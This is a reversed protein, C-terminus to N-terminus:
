YMEERYKAIYVNRTYCEVMEVTKETSHQKIKTKTSQLGLAKLTKRKSKETPVVVFHIM